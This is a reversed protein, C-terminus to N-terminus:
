WFYHFPYIIDTSRFRVVAIILCYFYALYNNNLLSVSAASCASFQNFSNKVTTHTSHVNISSESRENSYLSGFSLDSSFFGSESNQPINIGHTVVSGSYISLIFCFVVSIGVIVSIKLIRKVSCFYIKQHNM